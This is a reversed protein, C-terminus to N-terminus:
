GRHTVLSACAGGILKARNKERTILHDAGRLARLVRTLHEM